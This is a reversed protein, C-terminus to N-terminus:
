TEETQLARDETQLPRDLALGPDARLKALARASTSKVTGRAIGLLDAIDAESRDEYFRLVVV